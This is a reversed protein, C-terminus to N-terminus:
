YANESLAKAVEVDDYMEGRREIQERVREVLEKLYNDEM